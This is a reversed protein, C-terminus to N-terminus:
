KSLQHWVTTYREQVQKVVHDPLDPGPDQKNWVLSSVYDRVVQKDYSKAHALNQHSKADWYRSSDPTLLEDILIVQNDLLGFEFKTDAIIMGRSKAHHQAAQYLKLSTTKLTHALSHGLTNAMDGMSVATDHSPRKEAPTFMPTDLPTNQTHGPRVPVGDVTKHISYEQWASGTLYGRVICEFPIAATKKVLMSRNELHTHYPKVSAPIHEHELSTSIMHHPVIKALTNFWFESIKNLIVGKKEVLTPLVIDFASVQDSTVVLLSKGLDFVRRIKGQRFVPLPVADIMSIPNNKQPQVSKSKSSLM